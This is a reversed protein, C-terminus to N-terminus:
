LNTFMPLMFLQKHDNISFSSTWGSSVSTEAEFLVFPLTDPLLLTESRRSNVTSLSVLSDFLADAEFSVSPLSDVLLLPVSGRSDDTFFSTLVNLLVLVDDDLM